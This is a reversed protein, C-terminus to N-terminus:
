RAVQTDLQTRMRRLGTRIRTKITGLPVDLKQAIQEHTIGGFFGLEIPVRQDEPLALLAARVRDGDIRAFVVDDITGELPLDAPMEDVARAAKSRLVDLAQNRAVRAIWAGFNGDRFAAPSSWLKLFVSQVLDEAASSDGLIRQAIGYVLRHYRDYLVEFATIDRERLGAILRVTDDV